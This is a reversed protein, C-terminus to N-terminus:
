GADALLRQIAGASLATKSLFGRARSAAILDGYDDGSRM